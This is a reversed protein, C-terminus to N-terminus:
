TGLSAARLSYRLIRLRQQSRLSRRNFTFQASANWARHAWVWLYVLGTHRHWLFDWAGTFTITDLGYYHYIHLDTDILSFLAKNTEVSFSKGDWQRCQIVDGNLSDLLLYPKGDKAHVYALYCNVKEGAEGSRPILSQLSCRRKFVQHLARNFFYEKLRAGMLRM